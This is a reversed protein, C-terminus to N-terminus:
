EDSLDATTHAVFTQTAVAAALDNVLTATAERAQKTTPYPICLAHLITDRLLTGEAM